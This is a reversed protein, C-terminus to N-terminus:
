NARLDCEQNNLSYSEILASVYPLAQRIHSRALENMHDSSLVDSRGNTQSPQNWLGYIHIPEISISMM